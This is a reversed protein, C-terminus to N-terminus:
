KNTLVCCIALINAVHIYANYLAVYSPLGSALHTLWM